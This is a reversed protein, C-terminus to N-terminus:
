NFIFLSKAINSFFVCFSVLVNIAYLTNPFNIVGGENGRNGKFYCETIFVNQLNEFYYLTTYIAGGKFGTNGIFVSHKIFLDLGNFYLVGGNESNLQVIDPVGTIGSLFLNVIAIDFIATNYLFTCNNVKLSLGSFTLCNSLFSSHNDLFISDFM